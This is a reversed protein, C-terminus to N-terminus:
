RLKTQLEGLTNNADLSFIQAFKIRQEEIMKGYCSKLETMTKNLLGVFVNLKKPNSLDKKDFGLAKPIDNTFLNHPSKASDFASRLKIAKDSIRGLNRTQQTFEPLAKM